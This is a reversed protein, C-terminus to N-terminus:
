WRVLNLEKRVKVVSNIWSQVSCLRRFKWQVVNLYASDVYEVQVHILNLEAEGEGLPNLIVRWQRCSSKLKTTELVM